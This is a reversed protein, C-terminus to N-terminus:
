TAPSTLARIRDGVARAAAAAVELPKRAKAIAAAVEAETRDAEIALRDAEAQLQLIEKAEAAKAEDLARYLPGFLKGAAPFLPASQVVARAAEIRALETDHLPLCESIRDQGTARPTNATAARPPRIMAVGCLISQRSEEGREALWRDAHFLQYLEPRTVFLGHIEQEIAKSSKM